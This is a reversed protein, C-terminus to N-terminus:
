DCLQYTFGDTGAWGPNPTYTFALGYQGTNGNGDDWHDGSDIQTLTGHAPSSTTGGSPYDTRTAWDGEWYGDHWVPEPPDWYGDHWVPEPPDWYGDHWEGNEDEYGDQWVPDQWYSDQWVPQQWYGDHWVPDDYYGDHWAPDQWHGDHWVPQQWYGDHGT